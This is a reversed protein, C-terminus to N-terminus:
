DIKQRKQHNKFFMKLKEQNSIQNKNLYITLDLFEYNEIVKKKFTHATKYTLDYRKSILSAKPQPQEYIIDIYIHFAKVLGFRVNHFLTNYTTKYKTKCYKCSKDYNCITDYFKESKCKPCKNVEFDMLSNYCIENTNFVKKLKDAINMTTFLYIFTILYKKSSGM